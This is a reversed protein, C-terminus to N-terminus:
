DRTMEPFHAYVWDAFSDPAAMTSLRSQRVLAFDEFLGSAKIQKLTVPEPFEAIFKLDVLASKSDQPDAIPETIVEALGVVASIGGSHYIFVRDGPRMDRIARVAQPNRVGNWTTSGDRRLDAISYVGPESKALFYRM